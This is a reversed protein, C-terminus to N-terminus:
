CNRQQGLGAVNRQEKRREGGGGGGGGGGLAITFEYFM